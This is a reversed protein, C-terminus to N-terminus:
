YMWPRATIRDLRADREPHHARAHDSSGYGSTPAAAAGLSGLALALIAAGRAARGLADTRPAGTLGDPPVTRAQMVAHLMWKHNTM